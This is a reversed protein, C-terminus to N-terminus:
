GGLLANKICEFPERSKECQKVINLVQEVTLSKKQVGHLAQYFTQQAVQSQMASQTYGLMAILFLFIFFDVPEYWVRARAALEMVKDLVVDLVEAVESKRKRQRPKSEGEQV